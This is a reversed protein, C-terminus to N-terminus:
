HDIADWVDEEVLVCLPLRSRRCEAALPLECLGLRPTRGKDLCLRCSPHVDAGLALLLAVASVVGVHWQSPAPRKAIRTRPADLLNAPETLLLDADCQM